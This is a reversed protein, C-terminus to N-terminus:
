EVSIFGINKLAKVEIVTFNSNELMNISIPEVEIDDIDMQLLDNLENEFIRIKDKDVEYGKETKSGYKKILDIRFKEFKQLQIDIIDIKNSLKFATKIPLDANVLKGLAPEANKLDYMKM